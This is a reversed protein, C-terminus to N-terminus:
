WIVAVRFQSFDKQFKARDVPTKDIGPAFGAFYTADNRDIKSNWRSEM